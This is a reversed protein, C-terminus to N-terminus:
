LTLITVCSCTYMDPHTTMASVGLGTSLAFPTTSQTLSSAESKELFSVLTSDACFRLDLSLTSLLSGFM